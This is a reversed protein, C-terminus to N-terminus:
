ECLVRLLPSGRTGESGVVDPEQPGSSSVPSIGAHTSSVPGTGSSHSQVEQRRLSLLGDPKGSIVPLPCFGLAGYISAGRGAKTLTRCTAHESHPSTGSRPWGLSARPQLAGELTFLGRGEWPLLSLFGTPISNIRSAPSLKALALLTKINLLGM